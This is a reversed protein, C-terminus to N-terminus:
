EVSSAIRVAEAMSKAGELRFNLGDRTWLLTAAAQRLPVQTGDERPIYGLPHEGPIWWAERGNVRTYEPAPPGLKKFFFPTVTGDFQDLRLGGPWYMSVVRGGDAVTVREPDALATPTKVQFKAQNQVDARPVEHEGPLPTTTTVPPPTTEGIEIEIGAFRLIQVVAARGQPTAATVTIVAIVVAAIVTWRTRRRRAGDRRGPAPSDTRTPPRVPGTIPGHAPDPGAGPASADPASADPTTAAPTTAAPPELRARVAAAVDSSPPPEPVDLLDGLATLEAEIEDFPEHSSM